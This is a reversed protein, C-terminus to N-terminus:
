GKFIDILESTRDRLYNQRLSCYGGSVSRLKRHRGDLVDMM